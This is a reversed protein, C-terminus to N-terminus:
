SLLGQRKSWYLSLLCLVQSLLSCLVRAVFCLKSFLDNKIRCSTSVFNSQCNINGLKWAQRFVLHKAFYLTQLDYFRILLCYHLSFKDYYCNWQLFIWTIWSGPTWCHLGQFTIWTVKRCKKLLKNSDCCSCFKVAMSRAILSHKKWFFMCAFIVSRKPMGVLIKAM